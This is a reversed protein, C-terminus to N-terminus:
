SVASANSSFPWATTSASNEHSDLSTATAVTSAAPRTVPTASPVAVIVALAPSTGPVVCMATGSCGAREGRRRGSSSVYVCWM